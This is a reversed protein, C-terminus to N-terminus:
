PWTREAGLRARWAVAAAVATLLALLWVPPLAIIRSSTAVDPVALTGLSVWVSAGAAVCLGVPILHTAGRRM